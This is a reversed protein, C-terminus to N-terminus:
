SKVMIILFFVFGLFVLIIVMIVLYWDIKFMMILLGILLVIFVVM